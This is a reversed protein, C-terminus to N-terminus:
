TSYFCYPRSEIGLSRSDLSEIGLNRSDRRVPGKRDELPIRRIPRGQSGAAAPARHHHHNISCPKEGCPFHSTWSRKSNRMVYDESVEQESGFFYLDQLGAKEPKTM